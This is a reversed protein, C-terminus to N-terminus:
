ELRLERALKVCQARSIVGLKCYISSTHFKVTRLTIGMKQAIEKNSYAELLLKLVTKEKNTLLVKAAAESSIAPKMPLNGQIQGFIEKAYSILAEPADYNEGDGWKIICYRLLNIMPDSEDLYSRVYGAERGISLSKGLYNVAQPMKNTQHYLMSLLNLIEVMSHRRAKIETFALLRTLLLEADHFRSKAMLVRAYVILEFERTKSIEMYSDLRAGNLWDEAKEMDGSDLYLRTRFAQLLYNWHVKGGHELKKECAELVEHAGTMDGKAKKMRALCVMTPVLAGPCNAAQAEDLAQLLYPLAEELRNSEYLYEGVLLHAYGPNRAIMTRYNEIMERFKHQNEKFLQSLSHFPCRCFYIDLLNLDLYDLMKYTQGANVEAALKVKGFLEEIKGERILLNAECLTFLARAFNGLEQNSAYPQAALLIEMKSLWQRSLAFLETQAYYMVYMGAIKFSKDKYAEPLKEILSFAWVFEYNNIFPVKVKQEFLSVAEEYSTGQLYHEFAKANFGYERYWTAARIHLESVMDRDSKILQKYLIDKFLKHWRYAHKEDDLAILFGNKEYMDQLMRSGTNDGTVANCVSESLIDLISTQLAFVRMEEPWSDIVETQLYQGIDRRCHTLGEMTKHNVMDKEMSMAIAVLAAAWGETYSEVKQLAEQDMMFGRTQYFQFFEENRFRLDESTIRLLQSKMGQKTLNLGPEIRSILILHMKPPLYSILYSLGQLIAPDTLWHVDDLVLLFDSEQELLKNILISLHINAKLLEYSSFVYETEKSIGMAIEDLAACMYRWFVRPNNDETDVSLWAAPLRAQALWELVATTKGYGAPATVTTVKHNLSNGLRRHLRRRPILYPSGGPKSYKTRILGPSYAAAEMYQNIVEDQMHALKRGPLIPRHALNKTDGIAGEMM